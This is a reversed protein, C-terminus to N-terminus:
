RTGAVGMAHLRVARFNSPTILHFRPELRTVRRVQDLVTDGPIRPGALYLAGHQVHFPLIEFEHQMRAPLTRQLAPRVRGPELRVTPLSQQLSLAEYLEDESLAGAALLREGLRLGAPGAAAAREVASRSCFGQDVLVDGLRRKHTLLAGRSPYAHDTKVWGLTRGALRAAFYNWLAALAARSNIWNAWFMRLPAGAAFRWGYVRASANMRFAMRAAFLVTTAVMLASAYPWARMHRLLPWPEGALACGAWTLAGYVLILNCLLSIPNGWLGKRDRWLYWRNLWGGPWGHREWAQLSNGTVWRTRQRISAAAQRPFYERTAVPAGHLFELPVFTERFGHRYLRLGIDYDETLAGPEFILNDEAAALEDLATRRFATGVGCGPIFAGLANRTALDKGQSEAFDDCYVGHTMERWPTPLPLVAIQAMDSGACAGALRSFSDPHIVDEADHVIIIDFRAGKQQEWLAMRQYIWNLCDPKSTPGDHPAMAIHVRPHRIGRVAEVTPTDNPYVGVFVQYDPWAIAALNHELMGAIVDAERWCPIFLAISVGRAPAPPLTRRRGRFVWAFDAILDDLGSLVIYCAIPVFVAAAAAAVYENLLALWQWDVPPLDM